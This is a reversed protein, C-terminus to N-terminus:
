RVTSRPSIQSSRQRSKEGGNVEGAAVGVRGHHTARGPEQPEELILELGPYPLM